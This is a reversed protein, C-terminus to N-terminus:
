AAHRGGKKAKGNLAGLNLGSSAPSQLAGPRMSALATNIAARDWLRRNGHEVGEPLLGAAVYSRFQEKTLSTLYLAVSETVWDPPFPYDPM